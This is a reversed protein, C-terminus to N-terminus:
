GFRPDTEGRYAIKEEGDLSLAPDIVIYQHNRAPVHSKLEGMGNGDLFPGHWDKAKGVFAWYECQQIPGYKFAKSHLDQPNQTCVVWKVGAERDGHLGARLPGEEGAAFPAHQAEDVIVQVTEDHDRAWERAQVIDAPYRASSKRVRRPPDSLASREGKKTTLFVSPGDHRAHMERLYTTKGGGSPGASLVHEADVAM